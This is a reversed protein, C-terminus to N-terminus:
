GAQRLRQRSLRDSADEPAREGPQLERGVEHGRVEDPGADVPRRLLREVDLEARDEGVDHQGVLDIARRRLDLGGQQFHHCFTM